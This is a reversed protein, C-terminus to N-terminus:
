PQQGELNTPKFSARITVDRRNDTAIADAAASFEEPAYDADEFTMECEVPFEGEFGRAAYARIRNVTTVREKWEEATQEKMEFRFRGDKSYIEVGFKAKNAHSGIRDAIHTLDDPKMSMVRISQVNAFGVGQGDMRNKLEFVAEKARVTKTEIDGIYRSEQVGVTVPPAPEPPPAQCRQCPEDGRKREKCHPCRPEDGYIWVRFDDEIGISANQDTITQGTPSEVFLDKSEIAAIIVARFADRNLMMSQGPSGTFIRHVDAMSMGSQANDPSALTTQKWVSPNLRPREPNPIKQREILKAIIPAQGDGEKDTAATLTEDTLHPAADSFSNQATPYILHTWKNQISQSLARRSSTIIVELREMQFEKLNSQEKKVAEAAMNTLLNDRIDNLNDDDAVLYLVNNRHERHTGSTGPKERHLEAIIHENRARDRWNFSNASIISLYVNDREDPSSSIRGPYMSLPITNKSRTSGDPGYENRVADQIADAITNKDTIRDKREYVMRLVNPEQTFRRGRRSPNEDLFLAKQTYESVAASIVASDSNRPSLISHVIKDDDIGSVQEPVALSGLLIINAAYRALDTGITGATSRPGMVDTDIAPAIQVHNLGAILHDHTRQDAMDVHYPHILADQINPQATIINAMLRIAGRARQFDGNTFLWGQIIDMLDPHFPYSDFFRKEAETDAPNARRAIQAYTDATERRVAEDCHTFLRQRLIAPLDDDGSPTMDHAQRTLTSAVSGMIDHLAISDHGFADHSQEPTTIVLVTRPCSAIAHALASVTQKINGAPLDSRKARSVWEVLEDVLILVPRDEFIDAFGRGGPDSLEEDYVRFEEFMAPGGVHYAIFGTLSKARLGSTGLRTGRTLDSDKGNFSVIKVDDTALATPILGNTKGHLVVDPHKAGAALAILTHTKGGGYVSTFRYISPAGSAAGHRLRDFVMRCADRMAQTPYTAAFFEAAGLPTAIEGSMAKDLNAAYDEAETINERPPCAHLVPTLPM